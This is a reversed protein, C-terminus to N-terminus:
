NMSGNSQSTKDGQSAGSKEPTSSRLLNPSEESNVLESTNEFSAEQQTYLISSESAEHDNENEGEANSEGMESNGQDVETQLVEGRGFAEAAATAPTPDQIDGIIQLIRDPDNCLENYPKYLRLADEGYLGDEGEQVLCRGVLPDYVIAHQYMYIASLFQVEYDRRFEDTMDKEYSNEYLQAFFSSLVSGKSEMFAKRVIKSATILGIGKLKECYDCGVAAFLVAMMTPSFDSLNLTGTTSGISEYQLLIGTPPDISKYLIAKAGYAVLDSDETIILDIYEMKSMYALQSDAEYPAVLFAVKSERLSRIVQDIIRPFHEGAGARRFAKTRIANAAEVNTENPDVPEDRQLAHKLRIERRREVEKTKIPPTKGDLVVILEGKSMEALRGLRKMVYGTCRTIYEQIEEENSVSVENEQEGLLAARGYNTLHRGDALMDGYGYAGKYVWSNIDVGIRLPRRRRRKRNQFRGEAYDRLDVARGASELVRPLFDQIGM